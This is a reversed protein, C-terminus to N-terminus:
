AALDAIHFSGYTHVRDLAHLRDALERRYNLMEGLRGTHNGASVSLADVFDTRLGGSRWLIRADPTARNLIAQWEDRLIDHGDASLWDMHDLLVFRSVPAEHRQLFRLVSTTAVSVRDALGNQLRAFNEPKLYEPCCEPTYEGTLYVRWFYNDALPLRTFVTEISNEIFAGIGGPFDDDVQRRQPAPVGLLSLTADRRVAWRLMPKWFVDKLRREYIERQKEVTPANLLEMIEDRTKSISDIYVNILRAFTGATGRFYFSRRWGVGAFFDIHRDWYARASNSLLTRLSDHYVDRADSLRGRGFLAFFTGHDLRKLGALKLELLANQRPNMDVAYVRRPAMLVYDLV